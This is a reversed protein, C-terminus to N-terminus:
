LKGLVEISRKSYESGVDPKINKLHVKEKMVFISNGNFNVNLSINYQLGQFTKDAVVLIM